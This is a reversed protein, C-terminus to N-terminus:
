NHIYTLNQFKIVDQTIGNALYFTAFNDPNEVEVQTVPHQAQLYSGYKLYVASGDYVMTRVVRGFATVTIQGFDNQYEFDFSDGSKITGLPFKREVGDTGKVRAYVDFIGDLAINNINGVEVMDALFVKVLAGAGGDHCQVIITKAGPSVQISIRAKLKESTEYMSKRYKTKLKLENRWGNATPTVWQSDMASFKLQGPLQYPSLGETSFYGQLVAQATYAIAVSSFSVSSISAISSSAVSAVSSSAKSSSASSQSFCVSSILLLFPLLCYKISNM